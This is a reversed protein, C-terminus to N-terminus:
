LRCEKGVRREESRRIEIAIQVDAIGAEVPEVPLLRADSIDEITPQVIDYAEMRGQAVRLDVGVELRKM